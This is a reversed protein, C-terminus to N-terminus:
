LVTTDVKNTRMLLACRLRWCLLDFWCGCYTSASGRCSPLRNMDCTFSASNHHCHAVVQGLTDQLYRNVVSSVAVEPAVHGRYNIRVQLNRQASSILGLLTSVATWHETHQVYTNAPNELWSLKSIDNIGVNLIFIIYIYIIYIYLSLSLSNM